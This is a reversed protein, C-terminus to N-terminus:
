RSSVTACDRDFGENASLSGFTQNKFELTGAGMIYQHLCAARGAAQYIDSCAEQSIIFLKTRQM